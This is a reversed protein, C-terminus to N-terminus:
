AVPSLLPGRVAPSAAIRLNAAAAFQDLGIEPLLIAFEAADGLARLIIILESELKEIAVTRLVDGAVGEILGRV